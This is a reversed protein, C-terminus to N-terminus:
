GALLDSGHRKIVRLVAFEAVRDPAEADAVPYVALQFDKPTGWADLVERAASNPIRLARRAEDLTRARATPPGPYAAALPALPDQIPFPGRPPPLQPPTNGRAM